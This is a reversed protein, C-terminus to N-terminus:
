RKGKQNLKFFTDLQAIKKDKQLIIKKLQSNEELLQNNREKLADFATSCLVSTELLRDHEAQLAELHAEITHMTEEFTM